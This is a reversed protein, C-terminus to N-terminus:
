GPHSTQLGIQPGYGILLSDRRHGPNMSPPEISLNKKTPMERERERERARERKKPTAENLALDRTWATQTEVSTGENM